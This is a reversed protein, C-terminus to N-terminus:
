RRRKSRRSTKYGKGYWGAGDCCRTSTDAGTGPLRSPSASISAALVPRLFRRSVRFVARHSRYEEEADTGSDSSSTIDSDGSSCGGSVSLSSRHILIGSSRRRFLKSFVGSPPASESCASSAGSSGCSSSESSAPPEYYSVSRACQRSRRQDSNTSRQSPPTLPSWDCDLHASDTPRSSTDGDSLLQENWLASTTNEEPSSSNASEDSISTGNEVPNMDNNISHLRDSPSSTMDLFIVDSCSLKEICDNSLPLSVSNVSEGNPTKSDNADSVRFIQEHCGQSKASCKYQVVGSTCSIRESCEENSDAYKEQSISGPTIGNLQEGHTHVTNGDLVDIQCDELDGDESCRKSERPSLDRPSCTSTLVTFQEEDWNIPDTQVHVHRLSVPQQAPLPSTAECEASMEGGSDYGRTDTEASNAGQDNGPRQPEDERTGSEHADIGSLPQSLDNNKDCVGASELLISDSTSTKRTNERSIPRNDVVGNCQSDSRWMVSRQSKCLDGSANRNESVAASAPSVPVPHNLIAPNGSVVDTGVLSKCPTCVAAPPSVSATSVPCSVASPSTTVSFVACSQSIHLEGIQSDVRIENPLSASHCNLSCSDSYAIASSTSTSTPSSDVNGNMFTSSDTSVAMVRGNISRVTSTNNVPSLASNVTENVKVGHERIGGLRESIIRSQGSIDGCPLASNIDADAPSEIQHASDWVEGKNSGRSISAACVEVVSESATRLKSADPEVKVGDVDEYRNSDERKVLSTCDSVNVRSNISYSEDRSTRVSSTEHLITQKKYRDVSNIERKVCCINASTELGHVTCSNQIETALVISKDSFEPSAAENTSIDSLSTQLQHDSTLKQRSHILESAEVNKADSEFSKRDNSNPLARVVEDRSIGTKSCGNVLLTSPAQQCSNDSQDVSSTSRPAILCTPPAQQCSDDSQDVSSTSPPAVLCTPPAEESRHLPTVMCLLPDSNISYAPVEINLLKMLQQMVDDCRANIKLSACHDKPTWQLNVICLRPRREPPRHMCWLWRYKRLVKLSSGLCLITDARRAHRVAASWNLPWKLRGREGFHVVTDLLPTGCEYCRRGTKHNARSTNTTVDFNRVYQRPCSNCVEIYMNGHVESMARRGIGSRLHLGDCNQSVVHRVMSCRRLAYLAMHTYTPSAATLDHQGIQRGQSLRTWIGDPGRYDPISAATSVGAGSYVVLHRSSRLIEALRECKEGVVLEPDEVEVARARRRVNREVQRQARALQDPYKKVLKRELDTWEDRPKKLCGYIGRLVSKQEKEKDDTFSAFKRKRM